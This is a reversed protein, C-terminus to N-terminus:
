SDFEHNGFDNGYSANEPAAGPNLDIDPDGDGAEGGEDAVYRESDQSEGFDPHDGVITVGSDLDPTEDSVLFRDMGDPSILGHEVLRRLISEREDATLQDFNAYMQWFTRDLSGQPIPTNDVIDPFLEADSPRDEWSTYQVDIHVAGDKQRINVASRSDLNINVGKASSSKPSVMLAVVVLFVMFIAALLVFIVTNM